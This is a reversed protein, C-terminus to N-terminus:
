FNLLPTELLAIIPRHSFGEFWVGVATYLIRYFAAFLKAQKGESELDCEKLAKIRNVERM